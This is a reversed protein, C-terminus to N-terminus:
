NFKFSTTLNFLFKRYSISIFQQQRHASLPVPEFANVKNLSRDNLIAWVPTSSIRM